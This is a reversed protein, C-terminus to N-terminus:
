EKSNGAEDNDEEPDTDSEMTLPPIEFDSDDDQGDDKHLVRHELTSDMSLALTAVTENGRTRKSAAEDDPQLTAVRKATEKDKSVNGTASHAVAKVEHEQYVAETDAM